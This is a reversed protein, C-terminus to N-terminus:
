LGRKGNTEVDEPFCFPIIDTCSYPEFRKPALDIGVPYSGGQRKEGKDSEDRGEKSIAGQWSQM